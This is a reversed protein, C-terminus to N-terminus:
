IAQMDFDSKIGSCDPCSWNEPVSEWRTGPAIGDEPMGKEEDYVFGCLRCMLVRFEPAASATDGVAARPAQTAKRPFNLVLASLGDSAAELEFPKEDAKLFVVTPAPYDKGQYRLTGEAIVVFQGGSNSPAPALTKAGAPLTLSFGSLGREDKMKPFARLVVGDAREFTPIETVQWPDRGTMSELVAKGEPWHHGRSPDRMARLTLFGVGEDGCVIPGYPTTARAFHVMNHPMPHRGLTGKGRVIVQFEDVGHFHTEIRHHPEVEYLFAHAEQPVGPQAPLIFETRWRSGNQGRGSPKRNAAVDAYAVINPM